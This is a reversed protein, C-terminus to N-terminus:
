PTSTRRACTSAAALGDRRHDRALAPTLDRDVAAQFAALDIGSAALWKQAVSLKVQLVPIGAASEPGDNKLVPLRDKGDDQAPGTVFVVAAAGRERAQLVKYRLGSWRSPASATSPRRRTRRRRSTASSSRRGQGQPRRRGARSLRGAAGRHRLGVFALEGSFAGSSSLGLPTWDDAAVGELENTPRGDAGPAALAVGAKVRFPQRYSGDSRPRWAWRASASRSGTRRRAAPRRHRARAGGHRRRRAGRRRAPVGRGARWRGAGAAREIAAARGGRALILAAGCTMRKLIM